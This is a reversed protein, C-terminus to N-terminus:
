TQDSYLFRFTLQILRVFDAPEPPPYDHDVLVDALDAILGFCFRPDSATGDDPLPYTHAKLAQQVAPDTVPLGLGSGFSVTPADPGDGPPPEPAHANM